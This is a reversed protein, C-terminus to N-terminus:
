SRIDALMGLACYVLLAAMLFNVLKKHSSFFRDFASGFLAWLLNSVFASAPLMLSLLVLPLGRYYPLLFTSLNTIVLLYAKVNVAQMLIGSTFRTTDLLPKKGTKPKDRVITFALYLIYLSGLVRMFPEVAPISNYIFAGFFGALVVMLSVGVFVGGAYPVAGKLGYKSGNSM